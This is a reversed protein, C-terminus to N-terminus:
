RRPNSPEGPRIQFDGIDCGDSDGGRAGNGGLVRELDRLNLLRITQLKLKLKLPRTSKKM